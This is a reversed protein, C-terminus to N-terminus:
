SLAGASRQVDYPVCAQITPAPLEQIEFCVAPLGGEVGGGLEEKHKSTYAVHVLHSNCTPLCSGCRSNLCPRCWHLSRCTPQWEYDTTTEKWSLCCALLTTQGHRYCFILMFFSFCVSLCGYRWDFICITFCDSLYVSLNVSNCFLFPYSSVSALLCATM